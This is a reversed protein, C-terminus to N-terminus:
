VHCNGCKLNADPIDGKDCKFVRYRHNINPLTHLRVVSGLAGRHPDEVIYFVRRVRSHLLAMACMCCPEHSCYVDFGTCLYTEDSSLADGTALSKSRLIAKGSNAIALMVAHNLKSPQKAVGNCVMEDTRPDVVIAIGGAYTRMETRLRDIWRLHINIEGDSLASDIQSKVKSVPWFKRSWAIAQELSLPGHLPVFVETIENNVEHSSKKLEEEDVLLLSCQLDPDHKVRKLHENENGTLSPYQRLLPGLDRKDKVRLAKRKTLPPAETTGLKLLYETTSDVIEDLQQM